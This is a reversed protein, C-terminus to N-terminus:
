AHGGNAKQQMEIMTKQIQASIGIGRGHAVAKGYENVLMDKFMKEGRGGGFEPDAEVGQFMHSFMESLFVAEFDQAAKKVAPNAATATMSAATPPLISTM